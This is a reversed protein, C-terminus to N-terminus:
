RIPAWAIQRIEGLERPMKEWTKGGDRSRFIQGFITAAFLLLPDASNTAISWITSNVPKPMTAETWTQGFDPSFLLMGTEGSPKDGVSAIVVGSDDARRILSRFYVFPSEPTALHKWSSGNDESRHIGDETSVLITRKAGIDQFILDHTDNDRLGKTLLQWTKGRDNSRFVGDIEVTVWITDHIKPDFNISTVRPTNIFWCETASDFNSRTWSEGNNESIFIESPRTGCVITNPDNPDCTVQLIHLDDMPSPIYNFRGTQETYRYLGQDTGALLEGLRERHTHVSWVRAENYLGQTPTILRSWHVGETESFWVGQMTAAYAKFKMITTEDM